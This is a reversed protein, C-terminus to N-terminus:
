TGKLQTLGVLIRTLEEVDETSINTLKYNKKLQAFNTFRSLNAQDFHVVSGKVRQKLNDVYTAVNDIQSDSLVKLAIINTSTSSIGFKNLSEVINKLPSLDFIIESHLTKSKTQGLLDDLLAKYLASYVQEQSAINDCNVFAYDYDRNGKLLESKIEANNQVGEFLIILVKNSFQPCSFIEYDAM